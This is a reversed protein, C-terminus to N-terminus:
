RVAVVVAPPADAVIPTGNYSFTGISLRSNQPSGTLSPGVFFCAFAVIFSFSRM